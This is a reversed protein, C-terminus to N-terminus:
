LVDFTLFRPFILCNNSFAKLKSEHYCFELFIFLLKEERTSFELLGPYLVLWNSSLKFPFFSEDFFFPDHRKLLM